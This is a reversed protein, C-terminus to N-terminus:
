AIDKAQLAMDPTYSDGIKSHAVQLLQLLRSLYSRSYILYLEAWVQLPFPKNGITCVISNQQRYM